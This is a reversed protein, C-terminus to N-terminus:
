INRDSFLFHAIKDSITCGKMKKLGEKFITVTHEALGNTAPRYPSLHIQQIGNQHLFWQFEKSTFCMDNDTVVMRLIGFHAFLTRLQQITSFSTSQSRPFVEMWKTHADLVILFM